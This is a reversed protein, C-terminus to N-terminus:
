HEYNERVLVFNLELEPGAQKLAYSVWQDVAVSDTCMYDQLAVRLGRLPPTATQQRHRAVIAATIAAGFPPPPDLEM